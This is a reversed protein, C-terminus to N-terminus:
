VEESPGTAGSNVAVKRRYQEVLRRIEEEREPKLTGKELAFPLGALALECYLPLVEPARLQLAELHKLITGIDGRIYPGAMAGPVGSTELNVSVQRMMPALAKVGDARRMGFQEWLQASVAALASLLGGLMVGSLHYLPKDESRLSIPNGGIASAMSALYARMEENGEIGFTTGPISKVGNEVSSFAQLPHFAGAVAGQEVAQVLVDLSAAGSCHVVGQSPRWPISSAVTAITDDPCTIFVVDSAQAAEGAAPYAVCGPVKEALARASSFTRSAAAIVPYGKRSLAVALSTGVTGAGVFGIKSNRGLRAM